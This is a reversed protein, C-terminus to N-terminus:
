PIAGRHSDLRGWHNTRGGLMRARWWEFQTGSAVTYPEGAIKTGGDVTADYFGNEKDPTNAGNLSADANIQFVPTGVSPDYNRGAELLLVRLGRQTLVYAAMGGGAESGVIIADYDIATTKM